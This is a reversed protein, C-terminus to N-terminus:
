AIAQSHLSYIGSISDEMIRKKRVPSSIAREPQWGLKLRMWLTARSVLCRKDEAWASMPKTEGFANILRNNRKNRANQKSTVFQCNEPSYGGNNDRRDIELSNRYGNAVAWDYFCQFSNDWEKSISIGRGGYYHYVPSSADNCRRRMGCWVSYLPHNRKGHTKMTRSVIERHLCQCSLIKKNRLHESRVVKSKGCQCLVVVYRVYSGRTDPIGFEAGAIRLRGFEQGQSVTAKEDSYIRM